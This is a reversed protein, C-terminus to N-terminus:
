PYVMKQVTPDGMMKKLDEASMFHGTAGKRINSTTLLNTVKSVAEKNVKKFFVYKHYCLVFRLPISSYNAPFVFFWSNPYIVYRNNTQM